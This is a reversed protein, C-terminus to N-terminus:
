NVVKPISEWGNLIAQYNRPTAYPNVNVIKGVGYGGSQGFVTRNIGSLGNSSMVQQVLGLTFSNTVNAIDQPPVSQGAAAYSSTLRDITNNIYSSVASYINNRLFIVGYDQTTFSSYGNPTLSTLNTITQSPLIYAFGAAAQAAIDSANTVVTGEPPPGSYTTSSSTNTPTPTSTAASFLSALGGTYWEYLLFGGLGLLLITGFENDHEAM